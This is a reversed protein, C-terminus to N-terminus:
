PSFIVLKEGVKKKFGFTKFDFDQANKFSEGITDIDV